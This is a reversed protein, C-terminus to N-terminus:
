PTARLKDSCTEAQLFTADYRTETGPHRRPAWQRMGTGDNRQIRALRTEEPLMGFRAM